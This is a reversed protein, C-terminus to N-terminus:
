TNSARLLRLELVVVSLIILLLIMVIANSRGMNSYSFASMYAEYMLVHTSGSPGGRTLIYTPAFLLFNSTTAGVAIFAIARKLMPLTIRLFTQISSAGDVRAAEYLQSPIEQLAALIFIMWYSIGIWSAILIISYLAQNADILFPQAAIGVLTLLSNVFGHNPNLLLGWIVSAIPVSIAAPIYFLTRFGNIGRVAQNVLVAILVAMVVQFPNILVNFWLTVKLSDLFIPDTFLEIYNGLGVFVKTGTLFSSMYLSEKAALIIPYLKFLFLGTLAPLLFVFPVYRVRM